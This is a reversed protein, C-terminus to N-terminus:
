PGSIITETLVFRTWMVYHGSIITETLVFRTWMVYHGSIITETLVFRTWMVYHGSIITETLVFRTWMVYHGLGGNGTQSTTKIGPRRGIKRGIKRWPQPIFDPLPRPVLSFLVWFHQCQQPICSCIDAAKTM